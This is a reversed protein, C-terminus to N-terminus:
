KKLRSRASWIWSRLVEIECGPCRVSEASVTLKVTICECEVVTGVKFEVKVAM